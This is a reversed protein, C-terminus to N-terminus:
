KSSDAVTRNGKRLTIRRKPHEEAAAKFIARALPANVARALVRDVEEASDERWLEVVYPLEEKTRSPPDAREQM